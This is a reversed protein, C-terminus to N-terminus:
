LWIRIDVSSPGEECKTTTEAYWHDRTGKKSTVLALGGRFDLQTVLRSGLNTIYNKANHTLAAAGDDRVAIAIISGDASSEIFQVLESSASGHVHTDFVQKKVISGDTASLIVVHFGRAKLGSDFGNIMIPATWKYGPDGYGCAEIKIDVSFSFAKIDIDM